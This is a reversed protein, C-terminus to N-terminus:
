YNFGLVHESKGSIPNYTWADTIGRQDNLVKDALKDLKKSCKECLTFVRVGLNDYETETYGIAYKAQHKGLVRLFGVAFFSILEDGCNECNSFPKEAMARCCLNRVMWELGGAGSSDYIIPIYDRHPSLQLVEHVAKRFSLDEQYSKRIDLLPGIIGPNSLRSVRLQNLLEMKQEFPVRTLENVIEEMESIKPKILGDLDIVDPIGKFESTIQAIVKAKTEKARGFEFSYKNPCDYTIEVISPCLIKAEYQNEKKGTGLFGKGGYRVLSIDLVLASDGFQQHAEFKANSMVSADDLGRVVIMEEKAEAIIKKETITAYDPIKSQANKLAIETTEGAARETSTVGYLTQESLLQLGEPIQCEAQKKAEEQSRSVVEIVSKEETESKGDSVIQESLLHFGEPIQSQIKKIADELTEAEAEIERIVPAIEYTEPGDLTLDVKYNVKLGYHNEQRNITTSYQRGRRIEKVISEIEAIGSLLDILYNRDSVLSKAIVEDSCILSITKM